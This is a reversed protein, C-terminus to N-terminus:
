GILNRRGEMEMEMNKAIGIPLKRKLHQEKIEV